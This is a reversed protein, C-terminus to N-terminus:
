AHLISILRRLVLELQQLLRVSPRRCSDARARGWWYLIGRFRASSASNCAVWERDDVGKPLRVLKHFDGKVLAAEVFPRCVYLPPPGEPLPASASAKFPRGSAASHSTTRIRDSRDATHKSDPHRHPSEPRSRPARGNSRRHTNTRPKLSRSAARRRRNLERSLFSPLWIQSDRRAAAAAAPALCHLATCARLGALGSSDFPISFHELAGTRGGIAPSFWPIGVAELREVEQELAHGQKGTRM